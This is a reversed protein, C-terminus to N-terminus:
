FLNNFFEAISNFLSEFFRGISDFFSGNSNINSTDTDSDSNNLGLSDKAGDLLENFKDANINDKVNNLFDEFEKSDVADKAGDLYKQINEKSVSDKMSDLFNRGEETNLFEKVNDLEQNALEKVKSALDNLQGSLKDLDLDNTNIFNQLVVSLNEINVNTVYQELNNDKIVSDVVNIVQEKSIEANNKKKEEVLKQKSEVVAENLKEKSFGEKDENEEAIVNIVQIEENAIKTKESDVEIGKNELVKYVGALASEGTVPRIAAVKIDVGELGATIAANSYQLSSVKTIALPTTVEVRVKDDNNEKVHISSIMSQDRSEFGLYKLTDKGVIEIKDIDKNNDIGLLIATDEIQKDSLGRGYGYVEDEWSGEAFASAVIGALMLFALFGSIIRIVNKKM